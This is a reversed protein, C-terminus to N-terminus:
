DANNILHFMEEERDVDLGANTMDMFLDTPLPEGAAWHVGAKTLLWEKHTM